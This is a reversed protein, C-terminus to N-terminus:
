AARLPAGEELGWAAFHPNEFGQKAYVLPRGDLGTVRGGAAALVAHGAAIDWEMTRGLRPYLDAEGAAILCLKLSSGASALRAVKRGALFADLAAADGHSRSALVTLGEAPPVRCRITRRGSADEVFAGVGAAGAYLKGLAPALVVGLLPRGDEVLAINVTFEGNRRIFEKTGDLPDVLWFRRGIEPVRGAAVAEEAVVPIEPALAALGGLIVQEAREDAETVPSADDKGRVSFDTAYVSMVVDGADHAIPLLREILGSLPLANSM